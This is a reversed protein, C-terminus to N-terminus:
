PLEPWPEQLGRALGQQQLAQEPVLPERQQAVGTAGGGPIAAGAGAAVGAAGFASKKFSDALPSATTSSKASASM